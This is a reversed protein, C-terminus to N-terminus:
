GCTGVLSVFLSLFSVRANRKTKTKRVEGLTGNLFVWCRRFQSAKPLVTLSVSAPMKGSRMWKRRGDCRPRAAVQPKRMKQEIRPASSFLFSVSPGYSLTSRLSFIGYADAYLRSRWSRQFSFLSFSMIFVLCPFFFCLVPLPISSRSLSLSFTLSHSPPLSPPPPPLCRIVSAQCTTRAGRTKIVYEPSIPPLLPGFGSPAKAEPVKSPCLAGPATM